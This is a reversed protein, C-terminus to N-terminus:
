FFLCVIARMSTPVGRSDWDIGSWLTVGERLVRLGGPIRIRHLVSLHGLELTKANGPLPNANEQTVFSQPEPVVRWSNNSTPPRVDPSVRGPPRPDGCGPRSTPPQPQRHLGRRICSRPLVMAAGGDLPPWAAADHGAGLGGSWGPPQDLPDLESLGRGWGM